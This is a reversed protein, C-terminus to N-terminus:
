AALAERSALARHEDLRRLQEEARAELEVLWIPDHRPDLDAAAVLARWISLKGNVGM